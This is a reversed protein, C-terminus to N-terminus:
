LRRLLDVRLVGVVNLQWFVLDQSSVALYDLEQKVLVGRLTQRGEHQWLQRLVDFIVSLPPPDDDSVDSKDAQCDEHETEQAERVQHGQVTEEINAQQRDRHPQEQFLTELDQEAAADKGWSQLIEKIHM